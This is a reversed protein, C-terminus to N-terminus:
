INYKSIHSTFSFMIVYMDYLECFAIHIIFYLEVVYMFTLFWMVTFIFVIM